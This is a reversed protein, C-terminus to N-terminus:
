VEVEQMKFLRYGRNKLHNRCMEDILEFNIAQQQVVPKRKVWSRTRHPSNGFKDANHRLYQLMIGNTIVERPAGNDELLRAFTNSTFISGMQAMTKDLIKEITNM